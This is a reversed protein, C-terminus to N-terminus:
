LMYLLFAFVLGAKFFSLELKKEVNKVEIKLLMIRDFIFKSNYTSYIHFTYETYNYNWFFHIDM